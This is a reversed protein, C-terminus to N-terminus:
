DGLSVLRQIVLGTLAFVLALAMCIAISAFPSWFSIAFAALYIPPGFWYLRNVGRVITQNAGNDLLKGRGVAYRWLGNFSLAILFLHGSYVAAATKAGAHLLHAALLSAPFPALSVLLLLLGNLYIFGTDVRRIQNFLRHHSAWMILITFFSMLYALFVPWQGALHEALSVGSPLEFPKVVKLDLVLLTIAIAFVGDSFAEVRVTEKTQETKPELSKM